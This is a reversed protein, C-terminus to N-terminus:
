LKGAQKNLLNGTAQRLAENVFPEVVALAEEWEKQKLERPNHWHDDHFNVYLGGEKLRNARQLWEGAALDTEVTAKDEASHPTAGGSGRGAYPEAWPSRRRV